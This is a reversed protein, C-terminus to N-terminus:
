APTNSENDGAYTQAEGRTLRWGAVEYDLQLGHRLPPM